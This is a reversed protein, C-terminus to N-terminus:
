RRRKLSVPVHALSHAQVNPAAPCAALSSGWRQVAILGRGFPIGASAM